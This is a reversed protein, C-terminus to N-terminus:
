SQNISMRVRSKFVDKSDSSKGVSVLLMVSVKRTKLYKM